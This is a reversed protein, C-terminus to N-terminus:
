DNEEEQGKKRVPIEMYVGQSRGKANWKWTPADDEIGYQMAYKFMEKQEEDQIVGYVGNIIAGIDAAISVVDGSAKLSIGKDVKVELM